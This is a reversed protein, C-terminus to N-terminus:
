EFTIGNIKNYEIQFFEDKNEKTVHTGNININKFSLNSLSDAYASGIHSRFCIIPTTVKINSFHMGNIRTHRSESTPKFWGPNVQNTNLNYVSIVRYLFPSEIRIDKFVINNVRLDSGTVCGIAGLGLRSFPSANRNPDSFYAIIDVDEVLSNAFTQGDVNWEKVM